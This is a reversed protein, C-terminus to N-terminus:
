IDYGRNRLYLTNNARKTEAKTPEAIEAEVLAACASKEVKCANEYAANFEEETFDALTAAELIRRASVAAKYEAAAQTRNM